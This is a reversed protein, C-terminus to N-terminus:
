LNGTYREQEMQLKEEGYVTKLTAVAKENEFM